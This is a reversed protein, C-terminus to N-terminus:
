NEPGCEGWCHPGWPTWVCVIKCQQDGPCDANVTCGQAVAEPPTVMAQALLLGGTAVGLGLPTRVGVRGEESNLFDRIKHRLNRKM